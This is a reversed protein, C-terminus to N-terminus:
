SNQNFQNIAQKEDTGSIWDITSEHRLVCKKPIAICIKITQKM